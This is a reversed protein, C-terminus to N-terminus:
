SLATHPSDVELRAWRRRPPAPQATGKGGIVPLQAARFGLGEVQGVHRRASGCGSVTVGVARLTDAATKRMDDRALTPLMLCGGCIAGLGSVLATWIAHDLYQANPCRILSQSRPHPEFVGEIFRTEACAMMATSPRQGCMAHKNAHVALLSLMSGCMRLTKAAHVRAPHHLNLSLNTTLNRTLTSTLM